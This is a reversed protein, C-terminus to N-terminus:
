GAIAPQGEALITRSAPGHNFVLDLGAMFPEFGPALQAYHPHRYDHFVLRIGARAFPEPDLYDRGLPGSLYTSAGVARCLNLVLEAKHGGVDLESSAVRRTAIGFAECLHGTIREM